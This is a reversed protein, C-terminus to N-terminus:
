IHILSLFFDHLIITNDETKDREAQLLRYETNTMYASFFSSTLLCYGEFTSLEFPCAKQMQVRTRTGYLDWVNEDKALLNFTVSLSDTKDINEYIGKMRFKAVREGAKITVTNSEVVYQKKEIANSAKDDVEVGFSRDYDCINTAVVPIEFWKESDQVPYMSLTDSFMVYDSGSYTTRSLDNCGWFGVALTILAVIGTILLKM